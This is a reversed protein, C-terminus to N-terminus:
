YRCGDVHAGVEERSRREKGHGLEDSGLGGSLALGELLTLECGGVGASAARWHGTVSM